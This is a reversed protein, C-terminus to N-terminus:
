PQALNKTGKSLHKVIFSYVSLSENSNEISMVLWLELQKIADYSTSESKLLTEWWSVILMQISSNNWDSIVTEPGLLFSINSINENVKFSDKMKNSLM